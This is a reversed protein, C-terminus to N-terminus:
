IKFNNLVRLLYLTKLSLLVCKSMDCCYCYELGVAYVPFRKLPPNGHFGALVSLKGFTMESVLPPSWHPSISIKADESM